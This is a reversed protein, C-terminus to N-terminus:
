IGNHKHLYKKDQEYSVDMWIRISYMWKGKGSYQFSKTISRYNIKRPMLSGGALNYRRTARFFYSWPIKYYIQIGCTNITTQKCVTM